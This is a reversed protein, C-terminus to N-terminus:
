PSYAPRTANGTQASAAGAGAKAVHRPAVTRGIRRPWKLLRGRLMLRLLMYMGWGYCLLLYVGLLYLIWHM